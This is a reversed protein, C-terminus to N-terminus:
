IGAVVRMGWQVFSLETSILRRRLLMTDVFATSSAGSGIILYDTQYDM